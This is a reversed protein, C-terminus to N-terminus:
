LNPIDLTVYQEDTVNNGIGGFEGQIAIRKPDYPTSATSYFPTGCQPSSYHHNDQAPNAQAVFINGYFVCMSTELVM